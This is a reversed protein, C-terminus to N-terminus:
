TSKWVKQRGKPLRSPKRAMESLRKKLKETRQAILEKFAGPQFGAKDGGAIVNVDLQSITEPIPFPLLKGGTEQRMLLVDGHLFPRLSYESILQYKIGDRTFTLSKDDISLLEEEARAYKDETKIFWSINAM